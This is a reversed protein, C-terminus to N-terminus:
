LFSTVRVGAEQPSAGFGFTCLWGQRGFRLTPKLAEANSSSQAESRLLSRQCRLTQPSTIEKVCMWPGINTEPKALLSCDAQGFRRKLLNLPPNMETLQFSFMLGRTPGARCSFFSVQMSMPAVSYSVVRARHPQSSSAKFSERLLPATSALFMTVWTISGQVQSSKLMRCVTVPNM